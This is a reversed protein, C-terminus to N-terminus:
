TAHRYQSFDRINIEPVIDDISTTKLRGSNQPVPIGVKRVPSYLYLNKLYM